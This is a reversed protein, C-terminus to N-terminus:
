YTLTFTITGTVDLGGSQSFKLKVADDYEVMKSISPPPLPVPADFIIDLRHEVAFGLRSAVQALWQPDMGSLYTLQGSNLIFNTNVWSVLNARIANAEALLDNNSLAYLDAKKQAVGSPTLPEQAM